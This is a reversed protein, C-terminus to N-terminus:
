TSRQRTEPNHTLQLAQKRALNNSVLEVVGSLATDTDTQDDLLVVYEGSVQRLLSCGLDYALDTALLDPKTIHCLTFGAAGPFLQRGQPREYAAGNLNRCREGGPCALALLGAATKWTSRACSSGPRM